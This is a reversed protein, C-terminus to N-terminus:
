DKEVTLKVTINPAVFTNVGILQLIGYISTNAADTKYWEADKSTYLVEYDTALPISQNDTIDIIGLLGLSDNLSMANGSVQSTPISDFLYLKFELDTWASTDAVKIETKVIKGTGGEELTACQFTLYGTGVAGGSPIESSSVEGAVFSDTIIDRVLGVQGTYMGNCNCSM